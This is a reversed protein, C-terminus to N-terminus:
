QEETGYHILAHAALVGGGQVGPVQARALEEGVVITHEPSHDDRGGYEAPWDTGAYGAEYLRATWELLAKLEAENAASRVGARPPIEPAYKEIFARVERRFEQLEPGMGFEM